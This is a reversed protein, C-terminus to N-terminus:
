TVVGYATLQEKQHFFCKGGFIQDIKKTFVEQWHLVNYGTKGHCSMCLPIFYRPARDDCCAEKLYHVHHISLARGNEVQTKGCLGCEFNWFARVRNKFERNFKSCYPEFSAGGRWSPNREGSIKARTEPSVTRGKQAASIKARHEPSRHQGRNAVGIKARVEPRKVPNNEGSLWPIPKGKRAASMKAQTQPLAMAVRTTASIKERAEPTHHWGAAKM